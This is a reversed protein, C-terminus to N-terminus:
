LIFLTIFFILSRCLPPFQSSKPSTPASVVSPGYLYFPVLNRYSSLSLRSWITGFVIAFSKMAVCLAIVVPLHSISLLNHYYTSMVLHTERTKLSNCCGFTPVFRLFRTKGTKRQESTRGRPGHLIPQRFLRWQLLKTLDNWWRHFTGRSIQRRSELFFITSLM